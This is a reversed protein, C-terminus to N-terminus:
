LRCEKGVRREESRAKSKLLSERTDMSLGAKYKGNTHCEACRAKILPAIAHAFDVPKPADAQVPMIAGVSVLGALFWSWVRRTDAGVILGM